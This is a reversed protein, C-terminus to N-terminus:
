KLIEALRRAIQQPLVEVEVPGAKLDLCFGRGIDGELNGTSTVGLAIENATVDLCLVRIAFVAKGEGLSPSGGVDKAAGDLKVVLDGLTQLDIEICGKERLFTCLGCNDISGVFLRTDVGTSGEVDELHTGTTGDAM